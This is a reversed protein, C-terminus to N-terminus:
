RRAVVKGHQVLLHSLGAFRRAEPGLVLLVPLDEGLAIGTDKGRLVEPGEGGGAPDPVPHRDVGELMGM